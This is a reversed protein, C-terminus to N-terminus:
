YFINKKEDFLSINLFTEEFNNKNTIIEDQNYNYIHSNKNTLRIKKKLDNKLGLNEGYFLIIKEKLFETNKEIQYSKYIM